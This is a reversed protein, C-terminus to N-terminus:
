ATRWGLKAPRIMGVGTGTAMGEISEPSVLSAGAAQVGQGMLNLAAGTSRGQLHQNVRDISAQIEDPIAPGSAPVPQPPLSQPRQLFYDTTRNITDQLDDM